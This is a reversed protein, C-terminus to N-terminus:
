SRHCWVYRDIWGDSMPPWFYFLWTFSKNLALFSFAVGTQSLKSKVNMWTQTSNLKLSRTCIDLGNQNTDHTSTVTWRVESLTPFTMAALPLHWYADHVCPLWSANLGQQAVCLQSPQKHKRWPRAFRLTSFCNSVWLRQRPASNPHPKMQAARCFFM